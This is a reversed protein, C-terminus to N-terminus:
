QISKVMRVYPHGFFIIEEEPAFGMSAYYSQLSLAEKEAILTFRSHGAEYGQNVADQILMKGINRGRYEPIIAMSDLYYEDKCTEMDTDVIEWGLKEEAYGFTLDRARAYRRGDYAVLCGVPIGSDEAIRVHTWYYLSHEMACIERMVLTESDDDSSDEMDKMRAAAMVCKAIFAVDEPSAPRIRIDSM